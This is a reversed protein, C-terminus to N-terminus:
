AWLKIVQYDDIKSNISTSTIFIQRAHPSQLLHSQRDEDLESLVDDLLLIPSKNNQQKIFDLEILKFSLVLSRNEGRSLGERTNEGNLLTIFDDKHPGRTTYGLRLDDPTYKELWNVIENKNNPLTPLYDLKLQNKVGSIKSYYHSLKKNFFGILEHRYSYIEEILGAIQLNYVFLQDYNQLNRTKVNYLLQNRQKLIKQFSHLSNLYDNSTQLLINNLFKRRYDPSDTIIRVDDPLFVVVPIIGIVESPKKTVDNLKIIRKLYPSKQVIYELKFEKNENYLVSTKLFDEDKNILSVQKSRFSKTLFSYYIAELLNTKGVANNGIIAVKPNKIDIDLNHHSRFNNLKISSIM